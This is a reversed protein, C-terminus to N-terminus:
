DEDGHLITRVITHPELIERFDRMENTVREVIRLVFHQNIHHSNSCDSCSGCCEVNM